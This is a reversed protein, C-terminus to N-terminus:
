QVRRDSLDAIDVPVTADPMFRMEDDPEGAVAAITHTM